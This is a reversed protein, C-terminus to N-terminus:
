ETDVGVETGYGVESDVVIETTHTEREREREREKEREKERERERERELLWFHSLLRVAVKGEYCVEGCVRDEM